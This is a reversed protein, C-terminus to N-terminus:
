NENKRCREMLPFMFLTIPLNYYTKGKKLNM